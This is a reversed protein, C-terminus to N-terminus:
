FNIRIIIRGHFAGAKEQDEPLENVLEPIEREQSQNIASIGQDVKVPQELKLTTAVPTFSDM